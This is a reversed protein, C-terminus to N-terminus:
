SLQNGGINLHPFKDAGDIALDGTVKEIWRYGAIAAETIDAFSNDRVLINSAGEVVTVACGVGAKRIANGTATVNRGYPGWGLLM